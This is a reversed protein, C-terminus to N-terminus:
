RPAGRTLPVFSVPVTTQRRLSGDEQKELVLLESEVPSPGVPIVLRGRPALQEVLPGPVHDAGATVVIADFPAQEPWGAYGDGIRVEVNRYGLKRLRAAADNGLAAVIEITYVAKSLEALVAAQYGSGTGVELVRSDPRVQALDTMLAVIFPQSITQGSGIPLPRNEYAHERMAASVFAHRPVRGMAEMVRADFAKRGTYPAVARAMAAIEAVMRERAEATEDAPLAGTPWLAILAAALRSIWLLQGLRMGSCWRVVTARM